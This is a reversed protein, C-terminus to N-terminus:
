FAGSTGPRGPFPTGYLPFNSLAAQRMADAVMPKIACMRVVVALPQYDVM